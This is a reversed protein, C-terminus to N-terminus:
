YKHMRLTPLMLSHNSSLWVNVKEKEAITNVVVKLKQKDEAIFAQDVDVWEEFASDFAQILINNDDESELAHFLRKAHEKLSLFDSPSHPPLAAVKKSENYSFLVRREM